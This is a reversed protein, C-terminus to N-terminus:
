IEEQSLGLQQKNIVSEIRVSFTCVTMQMSHLPWYVVIPFSFQSWGNCLLVICFYCLDNSCLSFPALHSQGKCLFFFTLPFYCCVNEFFPSPSNAGGMSFCQSFTWICLYIQIWSCVGHSCSTDWLPGKVKFTVFLRSIKCFLFLSNACEM